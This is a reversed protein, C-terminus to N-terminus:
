LTLVLTLIAFVYELMVRKELKTICKAKTVGMELCGQKNGLM